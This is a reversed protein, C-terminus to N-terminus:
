SIPSVVHKERLERIYQVVKPHVGMTRKTKPTTPTPILSSISNHNHKLRRKWIWVTDRGVHLAERTTKEGFKEYFEIIKLREQAIEDKSFKKLSKLMVKVEEYGKIRSFIKYKRAYHDM